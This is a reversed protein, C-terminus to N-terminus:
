ISYKLIGATKQAQVARNEDSRNPLVNNTKEHRPENKLKGTITVYAVVALLGLLSIGM